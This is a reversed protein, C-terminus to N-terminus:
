RLRRAARVAAVWQALLFLFLARGANQGRDEDREDDTTEKVGHDHAHSFLRFSSPPLRLPLASSDHDTILSYHNIENGAKRGERNLKGPVKRWYLSGFWPRSLSVGAPPSGRRM